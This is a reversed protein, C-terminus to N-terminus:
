KVRWKERGDYAIVTACGATADARVSFLDVGSYEADNFQRRGREVEIPSWWPRTAVTLEFGSTPVWGWLRTRVTRTTGGCDVSVTRVPLATLDGLAIVLFFAASQSLLWIVGATPLGVIVARLTRSRLMGILLWAWLYAAALAVHDALVGVFSIPTFAMTLVLAAVVSVIVITRRRLTRRLCPGLLIGLLPGAFVVGPWAFLLWRDM